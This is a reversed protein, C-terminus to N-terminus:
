DFAFGFYDPKVADKQLPHWMAFPKESGPCRFTGDKCGLAALIGPAATKDGLLEMATLSDADHYAALLFGEGTYFQAQRALFTLNEGEQLVAKEPLFSKRLQAFEKPGIARLPVPTESSTCSLESVSSCTEYGMKRYMKRLGEEAPVLIAAAYGESSLLEHTDEMLLRCLGKGRHAPDTVVAYIYALKQGNCSCELWTLAATINGEEAICRCRAPAFSTELFTEWFGNWDGFVTKWLSLLQSMQQATPYDFTM